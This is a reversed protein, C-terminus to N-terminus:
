GAPLTLVINMDVEDKVKLAGLKSYPKIGFGTQPFRATGTIRTEEPADEVTLKLTVPRTRGVITLDGEVSLEPAAGTVATSQFTIQPSQRTQLTKKMNQTIDAKDSETLPKLGGTGEVVELSGSKITVQVSSAEPKATDLNVTGDWEKVELVLDHGMKAGMGGVYTNITLKGNAPGISYDGSDVTM